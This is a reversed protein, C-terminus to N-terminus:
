AASQEQRRIWETIRRVTVEPHSAIIMHPADPILHSEFGSPPPLHTELLEIERKVPVVRDAAGGIYRVPFAIDPLIPVYDASRILEFRRATALRGKPTRVAAYPRTDGAMEPIVRHRGRLAVYADIGTELVKSPLLQLGRRAFNVRYGPSQTFGGVLIMSRIREAERLAFEWGVLSGFSEAAVHVPGTKLSDFLDSLAEVYHEFDWEPHRPYAVEILRFRQSLPGRAQALPTWDGHVGPLYVLPPAGADGTVRYALRPKM